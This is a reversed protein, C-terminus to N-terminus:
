WVCMQTLIPSELLETSGPTTVQLLPIDWVTGPILINSSSQGENVNNTINRAEGYFNWNEIKYNGNIWTNNFYNLLAAKGDEVAQNDKLHSPFRYAVLDEFADRVENPRVFATACLSRVFDAFEPVDM